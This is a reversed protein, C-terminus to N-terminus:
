NQTKLSSCSQSDKIIPASERRVDYDYQESNKLPVSDRRFSNIHSIFSPTTNAINSHSYPFNTFDKKNAVEKISTLTKSLWPPWSNKTTNLELETARLQHTLDKFFCTQTVVCHSFAYYMVQNRCEAEVHALKTQALEMELERVRELINVDNKTSQYDIEQQDGGAKLADEMPTSVIYPQCHECESVASKFLVNFTLIKIKIIVM